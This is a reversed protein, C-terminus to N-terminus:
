TSLETGFLYGEDVIQNEAVFRMQNDVLATGTASTEKIAAIGAGPARASLELLGGDGRVAFNAGERDDCERSWSNLNGEHGGDDVAISRGNLAVDHVHLGAGVVHLEAHGNAERRIDNARVSITNFRHVEPELGRGSGRM